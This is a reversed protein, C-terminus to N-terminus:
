WRRDTQDNAIQGMNQSADIHACVLGIGRRNCVLEFNGCSRTSSDTVTDGFPKRQQLEAETDHLLRPLLV